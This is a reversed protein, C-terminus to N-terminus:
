PQRLHYCRGKRQKAKAIEGAQMASQYQALLIADAATVDKMTPFSDKANPFNTAM